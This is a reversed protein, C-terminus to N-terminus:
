KKSCVRSVKVVQRSNSKSGLFPPELCFISYIYVQQEPVRQTNKFGSAKPNCLFGKAVILAPVM